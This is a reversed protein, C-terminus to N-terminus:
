AVSQLWTTVKGLVATFPFALGGLRVTAVVFLYSLVGSALVAAVARVTWHMHSKLVGSKVVCCAFCADTAAFLMLALRAARAFGAQADPRANPNVMAEGAAVGLGVAAAFFLSAVVVLVAAAIAIMASAFPASIRSTRHM